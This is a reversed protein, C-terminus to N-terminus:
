EKVAPPPPFPLGSDVPDSRGASGHAPTEGSVSAPEGDATANGAYPAMSRVSSSQLEEAPTLLRDGADSGTARQRVADLRNEHPDRDDTCQSISDADQAGHPSRGTPLDGTAILLISWGSLSFNSVDLAKQSLM